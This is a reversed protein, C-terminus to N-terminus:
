KILSIGFNWVEVTVILHIFVFHSVMVWYCIQLFSNASKLVTFGSFLNSGGAVTSPFLITPIYKFKYHTLLLEAKNKHVYNLMIWQM